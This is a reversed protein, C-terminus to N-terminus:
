LQLLLSKEEATFSKSREIFGQLYAKLKEKKVAKLNELIFVKDSDIAKGYGAIAPLNEQVSLRIMRIEINQPEQAVAKEIRAKAEHLNQMKNKGFKAKLAFAAGRYAQQVASSDIHETLEIFKTAAKESKAVTKYANRLQVTEVTQFLCLFLFLGSILKM